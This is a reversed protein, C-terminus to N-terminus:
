VEMILVAVGPYYKGHWQRFRAKAPFVWAKAVCDIGRVSKLWRLILQSLDRRLNVHIRPKAFVIAIKRDGHARIKKIDAVASRLKKELAYQPDSAKESLIPWCDKAEGIYGHRKATFYIDIRGKYKGRLKGTRKSVRRKESVYEEVAIEGGRWMSGALVSLDARENYWWPVDKYKEWQVCIKKVARAWRKLVTYLPHNRRCVIGRFMGM